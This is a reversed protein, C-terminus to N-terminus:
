SLKEIWSIFEKRMKLIFDLSVGYALFEDDDYRRIEEMSERFPAIPDNFTSDEEKALDMLQVRTYKGSLLLAYIDLFDRAAYRAWLTTMKSGASDDLHVVPGIAMMAPPRAMYNLGLEVKSREEGDEVYFRAFGPAFRGNQVREVRMGAREWARQARQASEEFTDTDMRSTFLDVDESIRHYIGHAALAYGGALVFGADAIEALAVRAIKEHIEKM